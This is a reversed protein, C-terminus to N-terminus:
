AITDNLSKMVKKPVKALSGDELRVLYTEFDSEKVVIAQYSRSWGIPNYLIVNQGNQFM